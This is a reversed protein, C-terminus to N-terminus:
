LCQNEYTNMDASSLIIESEPIWTKFFWGKHQIYLLSYPKGSESMGNVIKWKGTPNLPKWEWIYLDTYDKYYAKM